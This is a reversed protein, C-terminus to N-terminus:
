TKGEKWAVWLHGDGNRDFYRLAFRHTAGEPVVSLWAAVDPSAGMRLIHRVHLGYRSVRSLVVRDNEVWYLPTTMMWRVYCARAPM